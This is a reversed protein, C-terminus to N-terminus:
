SWSAPWQRAQRRSHSGPRQKWSPTKLVSVSDKCPLLALFSVWERFRKITANIWKIRLTEAPGQRGVSDRLPNPQLVCEPGFCGSVGRCGEALYSRWVEQWALETLPSGLVM